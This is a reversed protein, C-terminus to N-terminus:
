GLAISKEIPDLNKQFFRFYQIIQVFTTFIDVFIVNNKPDNTLGMANTTLPIPANLSNEFADQSARVFKFFSEELEYQIPCQHCLMDMHKKYNASVGLLVLTGEKFVDKDM